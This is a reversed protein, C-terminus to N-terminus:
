SAGTAGTAEPAPPAEQAIAVPPIIFLTAIIVLLPVASCLARWGRGITAKRAHRHKSMVQGGQSMHVFFFRRRDGAGAFLCPDSVDDPSSAADGPPARGKEEYSDPQRGNPSRGIPPSVYGGNRGCTLEASVTLLGIETGGRLSKPFDSLHAYLNRM